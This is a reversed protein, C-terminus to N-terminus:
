FEEMEKEKLQQQMELSSLLTTQQHLMLVKIILKVDQMFMLVQDPQHNISYNDQSHTKQTMPLIM